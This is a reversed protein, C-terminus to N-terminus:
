QKTEGTLRIEVQKMRTQNKLKISQCVRGAVNAVTLGFYFHLCFLCFNANFGDTAGCCCWCYALVVRNEHEGLRIVKIM